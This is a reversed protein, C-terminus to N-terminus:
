KKGAKATKRFIQKVMARDAGKSPLLAIKGKMLIMPFKGTDKFWSFTGAKYMMMAGLDYTRGFREMTGLLLRNILPMNGAPKKAGKESAIVRLSDVVGAMNIKMPCRTYCTSCSACNWIFDSNLVREAAGLQIGRIIESPSSTTYQAVPCGNSCRRCQLCADISVGSMATVREALDGGPKSKTVKITM